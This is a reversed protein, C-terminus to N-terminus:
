RAQTDVDQKGDYRELQQECAVFVHGGFDQIGPSLL